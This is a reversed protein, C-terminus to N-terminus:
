IGDMFNAASPYYWVTGGIRMTVNVRVELGSVQPEMQSFPEPVVGTLIGPDKQYAMARPAGGPGATGLETLPLIENVFPNSQVFFDRISMNTDPIRVTSIRLFHELPLLITNGRFAKDSNTWIPNLCANLDAIIQDATAAGLWDGTPATSIPTAPNTLFGPLDHEDDGNLLINHELEAISRRAAEAKMATLPAGAFNAAAIEEFSWGYSTAATRLPFSLRKKSVDVRPIDTVNAGIIKALGRQDMSDYSWVMAAPNISTNIPIHLRADLEAYVRNYMQPIVQELENRVFASLNTNDFRKSFRQHSWNDLSDFKM